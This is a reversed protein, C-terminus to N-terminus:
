FIENWWELIGNWQKYVRWLLPFKPANSLLMVPLKYLMIPEPRGMSYHWNKFSHHDMCNKFIITTITRNSFKVSQEIPTDQDQIKIPPARAGIGRRPDAM